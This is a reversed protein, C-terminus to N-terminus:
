KVESSIRKIINEIIKSTTKVLDNIFIKRYKEDALKLFEENPNKYNIKPQNHAWAFYNINSNKKEFDLERPYELISEEIIKKIKKSEKIKKIEIYEDDKILLFGLFFYHNVEFMLVLKINDELNKIPIIIGYDNKNKEILEKSYKDFSSIKFNKFNIDELIEKELNKWFNLKLTHIAQNYGQIIDRALLMNKSSKMLHKSVESKYSKNMTNGTLKNVVELYQILTERLTPVRSSEKICEEIWKSINIEYSINTVKEKGEISKEMLSLTNGLSQESPDHGDLTLYFVKIKNHKTKMEKYYRDLQEGQDEAYIKNEIILADAGNKLLIDINKYEKLVKIKPDYFDLEGIEELFLKLFINSYHPINSLLEVIFQSHLNVEEHEKRLVTFINFDLEKSTDYKSKIVKVISFLNKLRELQM